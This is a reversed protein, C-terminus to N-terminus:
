AGGGGGGGGGQLSRSLFIFCLSISRLSDNRSTLISIVSIIRRSKRLFSISCTEKLSISSHSVFLCDEKLSLGGFIKSSLRVFMTSGIAIFLALGEVGVM